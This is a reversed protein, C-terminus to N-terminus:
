FPLIIDMIQNGYRPQQVDSLHGKGGYSIRAEAVKEFPITNESTIDQPRAIGAIQLERLEFNVRVQQRGQIVMNGNPLRQTVLAAVKMKIAENRNIKGEGKNDVNTSIDALSSPDPNGALRGASQELGFLSTIGSQESDARARTSTNNLQAQDNIDILVTVLDGVETARMDKFFSKSGSQWLSNPNNYSAKAQPLPVSVPQYGANATPNEIPALEPGKGVNDLRELTNACSTLAIFSMLIIHKNPMNIHM